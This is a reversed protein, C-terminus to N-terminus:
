VLAGNIGLHVLVKAKSMDVVDLVADDLIAKTLDAGILIAGTMNAQYLDSGSLNAKKLQAEELSARQLISNHLKAGTLDTGNLNAGSLDSNILNADVLNAGRIDLPAKGTLLGSEYLFRVIIGRRDGDLSRLTTLTRARAIARSENFKNGKLERKRLFDTMHDLYAQLSAERSKELEISRETRGELLNFSVAVVALMGPVVILQLWDWFTKARQFNDTPPQFSGFGSWAPWQGLYFWDYVSMAFPMALTLFIVIFAINIVLLQLSYKRIM